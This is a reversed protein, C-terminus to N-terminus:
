KTAYGNGLGETWYEIVQIQEGAALTAPYVFLGFSYLYQTYDARAQIDGVTGEYTTDIGTTVSYSSTDNWSHSYEAKVFAGVSGGLTSSTTLSTGQTNEQTLEITAANTGTGQGVSVADPSRFLPKKADREAPTPYSSPDGVTHPLLEEPIPSGEAGLSENYYPVTWKYVRADVPVDITMKTGILGPEGGGLVEYEYRECLTGNFVVIDDPYAGAYSTGYSTSETQTNTAAFEESMEAKAGASLFDLGPLSVEFSLTVTDTYGYEETTQQSHTVATGYATGSNDSNQSIGDKVPPAAIVAIPRPRTLELWKQGTYRIRLSDGDFDGGTAWVPEKGSATTLPNGLQLLRTDYTADATISSTVRSEEVVTDDHVVVIVDAGRTDSRGAARTMTAPSQSHVDLAIKHVRASQWEGTEAATPQHFLLWDQGRDGTLRELVFLEDKGDGNSDAVLTKWPWNDTNRYGDSRDARQYDHQNGAVPAFKASADDLLSVYLGEGGQETDTDFGDAFLALEAAPDDDFNGAELRLGSVVLGQGRVLGTEANKLTKLAAYGSEADDLVRLVVDKGTDILLALEPFRDDDFNGVAAAIEEGPGSYVEKLLAFKGKADDYIRAVVGHDSVAAVLIEERGDQDFDGVRVWAHQYAADDMAFENISTFVGDKGSDVIRVTLKTGVLGVVVLEDNGDDDLSASTTDFIHMDNVASIGTEGLSLQYDQGADDRLQGFGDTGLRPGLLSVEDRRLLRTELQRLPHEPGTPEARGFSDVSYDENSDDSAGAAGASSSDSSGGTASSQGSSGGTGASGGTSAGGTGHASGGGAGVSAQGAEGVAATGAASGRTANAADEGACGALATSAGILALGCLYGFGPRSFSTM